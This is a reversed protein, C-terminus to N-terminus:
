LGLLTITAGVDPGGHPPDEVASQGFPGHLVVELVAPRLTNNEGVPGTPITRSRGGRVKVSAPSDYTPTKGAFIM